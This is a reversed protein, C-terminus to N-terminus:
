CKKFADMYEEAVKKWSQNGVSAKAKRSLEDYEEAKLNLTMEMLTALAKYDGSKFLFGNEGSVIRETFPAIDSTICPVGLFLAEKIVLPDSEYFSPLILAKSRSILELLEDYPLNRRLNVCRDLGSRKILHEMDGRWPGDGIILVSFRNSKDMLAKSAKIILDLGKRKDIRGIYIFDFQKESGGLNKAEPFGNPIVQYRKKFFWYHKRFDTEAVRSVFILRDARWLYLIRWLKLFYYKIIEEFFEGHHGVRLCDKINALNEQDLTHVTLFTKAKKPKFFVLPSCFGGQGLFIGVGREELEKIVRLNIALILSKSFSGSNRKAPLTWLHIGDKNDIVEEDTNGTCVIWVEQGLETLSKSLNYTVSEIGGGVKDFPNDLTIIGIKIAIM